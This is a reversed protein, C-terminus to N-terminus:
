AVAAFSRCRRVPSEEMRPKMVINGSEKSLVYQVSCSECLWFHEVRDKNAPLPGNPSPASYRVLQGELYDFPNKCHPNACKAFM